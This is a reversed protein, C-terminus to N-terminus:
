DHGRGHGPSHDHRRLRRVRQRTQVILGRRGSSGGSLLCVYEGLLLSPEAASSALHREVLNRTLRRDTLASDFNEMM